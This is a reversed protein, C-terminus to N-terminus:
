SRASGPLEGAIREAAEARLWYRSCDSERALFQWDCLRRRLLAWDAFTHGDMLLMNVETETYDRGPEFRLALLAAAMRQIKQRSPWQQLRGEADVFPRLPRPLDERPLVRRM